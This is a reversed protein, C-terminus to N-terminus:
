QTGPYNRRESREKKTYKETVDTPPMRPAAQMEIMKHCDNQQTYKHLCPERRQKRTMACAM